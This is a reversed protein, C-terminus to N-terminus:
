RPTYRLHSVMDTLQQALHIAQAETVGEQCEFAFMGAILTPDQESGRIVAETEPLTICTISHEYTWRITPWFWEGIAPSALLCGHHHFFRTWPTSGLM